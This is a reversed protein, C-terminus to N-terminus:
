KEILFELSVMLLFTRKTSAQPVHKHDFADIMDVYEEDLKAVKNVNSNNEDRKYESLEKVHFDKIDKTVLHELNAILM